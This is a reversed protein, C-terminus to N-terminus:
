YILMVNSKIRMEIFIVHMSFKDRLIDEIVVKFHSNGNTITIHSIKQSLNKVLKDSDCFIDRLNGNLIRFQWQGM